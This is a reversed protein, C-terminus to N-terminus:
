AAVPIAYVTVSSAIASVILLIGTGLVEGLDLVPQLGAGILELVLAHEMMNIVIFLCGFFALRDWRTDPGDIASLFARARAALAEADSANLDSVLLIRELRPRAYAHVPKHAAKFISAFQNLTTM